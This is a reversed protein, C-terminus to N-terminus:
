VSRTSVRESAAFSSTSACNRSRGGASTFLQNLYATVKQETTHFWFDLDHIILLDIRSMGLRLHSQEYSRMLKASNRFPAGPQMWGLFAALITMRQERTLDM